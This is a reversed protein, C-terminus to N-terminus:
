YPIDKILMNYYAKNIKNIKHVLTSYADNLIFDIYNINISKM